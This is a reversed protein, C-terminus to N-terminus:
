ITQLKDKISEIKQMDPLPKKIETELESILPQIEINITQSQNNVFKPSIELNLNQGSNNTPSNPITLALDSEFKKHESKIYKITREVFDMVEEMQGLLNNESYQNLLEILEEKKDELYNLHKTYFDYRFIPPIKSATQKAEKQIQNLKKMADIIAGDNASLINNEKLYIIKDVLNSWDDRLSEIKEVFYNTM